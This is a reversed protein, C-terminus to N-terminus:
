SQRTDVAKGPSIWLEKQATLSWAASRARGGKLGDHLM